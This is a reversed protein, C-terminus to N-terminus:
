NTTTYNKTTPKNYNRKQEQEFNLLYFSIFYKKNVCKVKILQGKKEGNSLM